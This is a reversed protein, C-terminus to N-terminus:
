LKPLYSYFPCISFALKKIKLGQTKKDDTWWKSSRANFDSIVVTLFPNKQAVSELTLNSNNLFIEFENTSRSSLRYISMSVITCCKNGIKLDFCIHEQLFNINLMKILLTEKYYICVEERRNGFPDACYMNYGPINLNYNSSLTESNLHSESICIIDFKHM